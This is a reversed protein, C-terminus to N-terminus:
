DQVSVEVELYVTGGEPDPGEAVRLRKNPRILVDLSQQFTGILPPKAAGGEPAKSERQGSVEVEGALHLTGDSLMQTELSASVGINQYVFNMSPEEGAGSESAATPIPTRWGLLFRAPSGARTLVRHLRESNGTPGGTKGIVLTVQLNHDGKPGAAEAAFLPGVGLVGVLALAACRTM